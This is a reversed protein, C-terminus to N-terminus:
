NMCRRNGRILIRSRLPQFCSKNASMEIINATVKSWDGQQVFLQLADSVHGLKVLETADGKEVLHEKYLDDM